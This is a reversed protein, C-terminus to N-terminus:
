DRERGERTRSARNFGIRGKISQRDMEHLDQGRKQMREIFAERLEPTVPDSQAPQDTGVRDSVSVRAMGPPELNLTPAPPKATGSDGEPKSAPAVPQPDSLRTKAEAFGKVAEGKHDELPM